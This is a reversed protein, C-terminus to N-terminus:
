CPFVTQLCGNVTYIHLMDQGGARKMNGTNVIEKKKPLAKKNARTLASKQNGDTENM